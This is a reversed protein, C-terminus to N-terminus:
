PLNVTHKGLLDKRNFGLRKKGLRLEITGDPHFTPELAWDAVRKRKIRNEIDEDAAPLRMLTVKEVSQSLPLAHCSLQKSANLGCIWLASAATNEDPVRLDLGGYLTTNYATWKLTIYPAKGKRLHLQLDHVSDEVMHSGSNVYCSGTALAVWGAELKLAVYADPQVSDSPICVGRAAFFPGNTPKVGHNWDLADDKCPENNGQTALAKCLQAITKFPGKVDGPKKIQKEVDGAHDKTAVPFRAAVEPALSQLRELVIEQPHAAM